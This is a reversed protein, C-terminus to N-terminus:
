ALNDASLELDLELRAACQLLAHALPSLPDRDSAVLGIAQSHEPEVLKILALQKCGAFIYSFTHPIISSWEGSCVHSCVALFSDSTVTPTLKLGLSQALNNLVRRNQMCEQLLCLNESVAERWTVADSQALPGDAHTVFLYRERYLKRKRVNTLPENELYTLGADIEFKDLGSQIQVSSMSQVDVTVNPHKACFPSTLRAVAPMAAPIVGLRLTGKLGERLGEVGQKLSEYDSIIQSAWEVVREGEPTLGMFRPERIVLRMDLERELAKLGASLTSQTVHCREAARGFHKERALAVLYSMQRIFM